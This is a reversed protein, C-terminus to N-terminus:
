AQQRHTNENVTKGVSVEGWVGKVGQRGGEREAEREWAAPAPTYKPATVDHSLSAQGCFLCHGTGDLLYTDPAASKWVADEHCQVEKVYASPDMGDTALIHHLTFFGYETM